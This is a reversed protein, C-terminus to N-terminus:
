RDIIRIDYQLSVMFYRGLSNSYIEDYYYDYSNKDIKNNRNFIDFISFRLELNKKQLFKIGINANAIVNFPNAIKKFADDYKFRADARIYIHLGPSYALRANGYGNYYKTKLGNNANDTIKNYSIFSGFNYDLDPGINSTVNIGLTSNLNYTIIKSGNIKSPSSQYSTILNVSVNSKLLYFPFTYFSFIRTSYFGDLNEYSSIKSGKRLYKGTIITDKEIFYNSNSIRSLVYSGSVGFFYSDGEVLNTKVYRINLNHRYESKLNPNGIKIQTPNSFDPIKTLREVSPEIFSASYNFRIREDKSLDYRIRIGPLYAFSHYKIKDFYPLIKKSQMKSLLLSNDINIRLTSDQFVFGFLTTYTKYDKSQKASLLTDFIFKIEDTSNKVLNEYYIYYDAKLRITIKKTIPEIYELYSTHGVKTNNYETDYKYLDLNFPDFYLLEYNTKQEYDTSYPQYNYSLIMARGDTNLNRKYMGLVSSNLTYSQSSETGRNDFLTDIERVCLAKSFNKPRTKEWLLNPYIRIENEDDFKYEFRLNLKTSLNYDKKEANQNYVEDSRNFGFYYRNLISSGETNSSNISANANFNLAKDKEYSYVIGFANTSFIGASSTINQFLEMQRRNFGSMFQSQSIQGQQIAGSTLFNSENINNFNGMITFRQQKNFDNYTIKSSYREKDGIGAFVGGFIGRQIRGRTIINLAKQAAGDDFGSFRAQESQEDFVQVREVIEAPLARLAAIPDEGFFVRGDVLVRKVDEGQAKIRGERVEIGPMKSVLDEATADPGTKYSSAAFSLTDGEQTATMAKDVVQAEKLEVPFKRLKILGVDISSSFLNITIKKELYGIYNAILEYRGRRINEFIFEGKENTATGYSLNDDLKKLIINASELPSNEADDVVKGFIKCPQQSYLNAFIIAILCFFYKKM